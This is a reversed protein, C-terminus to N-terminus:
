YTCIYCHHHKVWQKLPTFKGSISKLVEQAVFGGLFASIPAFGGEAVHALKRLFSEDLESVKVGDGAKHNVSSAISIFEQADTDDWAHPLRNHKEVFEHLAVNGIHMQAPVTFKAFDAM